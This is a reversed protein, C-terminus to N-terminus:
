AGVLDALGAPTTTIIGPFTIQREFGRDIYVLDKIGMASAPIMDFWIHSAVHLLDTPEADLQDLMYEFARLRPKYAQAQEATFVRHFEVGLKDVNQYVFADAHNSFIVLPYKAALRQLPEVVDEHPGWTPITEFLRDADAARFQIRWRNCARQWSDRIVQRYPKYVGIAEDNRYNRFDTSFQTLNEPAVVGDLVANVAPTLQFDTLTGLMDFTIFKPSLTSSVTNGETGSGTM